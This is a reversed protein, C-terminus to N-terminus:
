PLPEIKGIDRGHLDRVDSIEFSEPLKTGWRRLVAVAAPRVARGAGDSVKIAFGWGDPSGAGLVAEAGSKAVLGSKEMIRTDRRGTGAVMHPDSRMAARIRRAAEAMGDPLGEGTALRAFATAFSQLSVAFTPVGCNDGAVLVEDEEVGCVRALVRLIERQAPHAPDRYDDAPWGEHACWALMGAHKGSCNGHVARPEEGAAAMRAAEPAYLPPHAGNRLDDGGLGAKELVSRVAALHRDEGSHSACVVALEEDTIGFADVAGSAVLPLAQFPKASSRLYVLADPDGVAELVEGNTDCVAYRGRHISEVLVGRRVTALPVDEPLGATNDVPLM